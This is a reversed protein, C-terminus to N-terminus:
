YSYTTLKGEAIEGLKMPVGKKKGANKVPMLCLCAGLRNASAVFFLM